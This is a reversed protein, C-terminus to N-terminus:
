EHSTFKWNKGQRQDQKRANRLGQVNKLRAVALQERVTEGAVSAEPDRVGRRRLLFPRVRRRPQPFDAADGEDPRRVLEGVASGVDEGFALLAEHQDLPARALARIAPRADLLEVVVGGVGDFGGREGVFHPLM